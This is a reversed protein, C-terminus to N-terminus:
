FNNERKNWFYCNYYRSESFYVHFFKSPNLADHFKNISIMINFKVLGVINLKFTLLNMSTKSSSFFRAKNNTLGQPVRTLADKKCSDTFNHNQYEYQM